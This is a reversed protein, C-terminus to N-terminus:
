ERNEKDHKLQEALTRGTLPDVGNKVNMIIHTFLSLVAFATNLFIWDLMLALNM